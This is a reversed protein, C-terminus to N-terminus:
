TDTIYTGTVMVHTGSAMGWNMGGDAVKPFIITNNPTFEFVIDNASNAFSNSGLRGCAYQYCNSGGRVTYPLGGIYFPSGSSGVDTQIWLTIHVTRGIKTYNAHYVGSSTFGNATPSWTGEEYDDLANAAATDSGFKLGDNDFRFKRSGNVMMDIRQNTTGGGDALNLLEQGAENRISLTGSNNTSGNTSHIDFAQGRSDGTELRITSVGSNFVHLKKAPSSTGIGVNGDTDVRFVENGEPLFRFIGNSGTDLIEAYSNGEIIRDADPLSVTEFTPDAGNNARLFKGNNSSTGHELKALTVAEDMIETSGVSNSAMKGRTITTTAISANTITGGALKSNTITGDAIKSANVAQNVIAATDVANDALESAEIQNAPIKTKTIADNKVGDTSVQTLGM